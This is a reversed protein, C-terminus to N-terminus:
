TRNSADRALVQFSQNLKRLTADHTRFTQWNHEAIKATLELTPEQGLLATLAVRDHPDVYRPPPEGQLRNLTAIHVLQVTPHPSQRWFGVLKQPTEESWQMQPHFAVVHFQPELSRQAVRQVLREFQPASLKEDPCLLLAVECGQPNEHLHQIEAQLRQELALGQGALVRRLLKGELRCRRAFPCIGFAEVIQLQWAANEALIEQEREHMQMGLASGQGIFQLAALAKKGVRQQMQGQM